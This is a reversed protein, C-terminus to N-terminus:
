EQQDEKENGQGQREQSGQVQGGKEGEKRWDVKRHHGKKIAEEGSFNSFFHLFFAFSPVGGIENRRASFTLGLIKGVAARMSLLLFLGRPRVSVLFFFYRM